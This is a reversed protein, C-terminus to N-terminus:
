SLSNRILSSKARNIMISTALSFLGLISNMDQLSDIDMSLFLIVDDLILLHKISCYLSIEIGKILHHIKADIIVWSHAKVVLLFLLPSLPCGQSHERQPNFFHSSSGNILLAMSSSNICNYTWSVFSSIHVLHLLILRIFLWDVKGFAM